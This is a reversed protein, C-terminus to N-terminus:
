LERTAAGTRGGDASELAGHIARITQDVRYKALRLAVRAKILVKRAERRAAHANCLDDNLQEFAPALASTQPFAQLGAVLGVGFDTRTPTGADNRYRKM